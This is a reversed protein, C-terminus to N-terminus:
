HRVISRALAVLAGNGVSAMSPDPLGRVYWRVTWTLSAGPQLRRYAGQPELEEYGAGAYLEADAEGPAAGGAPVDAYSKVFLLAGEVQALWGEAGDASYKGLDGSSCKGSSASYGACPSNQYWAIGDSVVVRSSPLGGTVNIAAGGTPFFTIGSLAVRTVEWPAWSAEATDDNTLTYTLDVAQADLVASFRKTVSLKGRASPATQSLVISSGDVSATYPQNDIEPIPPWTSGSWSSQPSPWFTSGYNGGNTLDDAATTLLNRGLLAFTVVRGGVSPDVEFLVDGFELVYKSGRAIPLELAVAGGADASSGGSGTAAGATNGANSAGAAGASDGAFGGIPTASGGSAPAAGGEGLHGGGSASPAIGARGAASTGGNTALGAAGGATFAQGPNNTQGTQNGSSCAMEMAIGVALLAFLTSLSLNPMVVRRANSCM